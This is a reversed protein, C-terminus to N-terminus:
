PRPPVRALELEQAALLEGRLVVAEQRALNGVDALPDNTVVLLDAARGPAVTGYRGAVGLLEAPGLTAARLAERPTLGVDVLLELERLLSEGPRPGSTRRGLDTGALLEVGAEHVRRTLELLHPTLGTWPEGYRELGTEYVVLTPVLRTGRAAVRELLARGEPTAHWACTDTWEEFVDSGGGLRSTVLADTHEITDQGGASVEDVSLGVPVHGALPMGRAECEDAVARWVDPALRSHVKVFEVGAAQLEAVAARGEEPTRAFRRYKDNPKPGDVFPGARFVRPGLLEGREVRASWADIVELDGGMDRVSTIGWAVLGPLVEAYAGPDSVTEVTAGGEVEPEGWFSLHVHADWLGPVIWRGSTDVVRAGRPVEVRARPGVAAITGGVILVTADALPEDRAADVVTGGVLALVPPGAASPSRCARAGLALVLVVASSRRTPRPM